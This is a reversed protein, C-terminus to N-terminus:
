CPSVLSLVATGIFSIWEERRKQLSSHIELCCVTDSSGLQEELPLVASSVGVLLPGPLLTPRLLGLETACVAVALGAGDREGRRAGQLCWPLIM